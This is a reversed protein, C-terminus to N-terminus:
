DFVKDKPYTKKTFYLMTGPASFPSVTISKSKDPYAVTIRASGTITCATLDPFAGTLRVSPVAGAEITIDSAFDNVYRDRSREMGFLQVGVWKFAIGQETLRQKVAAKIEKEYRPLNGGRCIRNFDAHGSVPMALFLAVLAGLLTYKKM